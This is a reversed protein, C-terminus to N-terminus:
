RTNNSVADAFWTEFVDRQSREKAPHQAWILPDRAVAYLTEFEDARIPRLRITTGTLVPDFQFDGSM